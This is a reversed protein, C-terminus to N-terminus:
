KLEQECAECIATPKLKNGFQQENCVCCYLQGLTMKAKNAFVPFQRSIADLFASAAEDPNLKGLKINGDATIAFVCSGNDVIVEDGELSQRIQLVSPYTPAQGVANEYAEDLERIAENMDPPEPRGQAEGEAQWRVRNVWGPTPTPMPIPHHPQNWDRGTVTGWIPEPPPGTLTFQAVGTTNTTGAFGGDFEVPGQYLVQETARNIQAAIRDQLTAYDRLNPAVQPIAIENEVIELDTLETTQTNPNYRPM